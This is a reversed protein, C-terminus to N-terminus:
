RRRSTSEVEEEIEMKNMSPINERCNRKKKKRKLRPQIRTEQIGSANRNDQWLRAAIAIRMMSYLIGLYPTNIPLWLNHLACQETWQEAMCNFKIIGHLFRLTQEAKEISMLAWWQARVARLIFHYVFDISIWLSRWRVQTQRRAHGNWMSCLVNLKNQVLFAELDIMLNVFEAM